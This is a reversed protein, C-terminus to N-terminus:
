FSTCIAVPSRVNLGAPVEGGTEHLRVGRIGSAIEARARAFAEKAADEDKEYPNAQDPAMEVNELDAPSCAAPHDRKRHIRDLDVAPQIEDAGAAVGIPHAIGARCAFDHEAP